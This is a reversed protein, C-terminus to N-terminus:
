FMADWSEVGFAHHVYRAHVIEGIIVWGLGVLRRATAQAAQLAAAPAALCSLLWAGRGQMM